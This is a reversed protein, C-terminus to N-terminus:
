YDSSTKNEKTAGIGDDQVILQMWTNKSHDLTVIVQTAHAHRRVNTLAEQVMRYVAYKTQPLLTREQGIVQVHTTIGEARTGNALEQVADLLLRGEIPSTRLATISRRVEASVEKTRQQAKNLAERAADPDQDIRRRATELHMNLAMLIDGLGDHIDQAIDNRTRIASLEEAQAAHEKARARAVADAEQAVTLAASHFISRRMSFGIAMLTGILLLMFILTASTRSIIDPTRLLPDTLILIFTNAVMLALNLVITQTRFVVAPLLLPLIAFLFLNPDHLLWMNIILSIQSIVINATMAAYPRRRRLLIYVTAPGGFAEIVHNIFAPISYRGLGWVFYAMLALLLMNLPLGLRLILTALRQALDELQQAAVQQVKSATPLGNPPHLRKRLWHSGWLSRKLALVVPQM